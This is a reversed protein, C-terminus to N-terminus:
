WYKRRWRRREASTGSGGAAAIRSQVHEFESIRCPIQIGGSHNFGYVIEAERLLNAFLPHNFYTVPVLVRCADDQKEGVYVALHGKSIQNQNMFDSGVPIYGSGPRRFNVGKVCHKLLNGLNCLKSIAKTACNSSGLRKYSIKAKRRRHIFKFVRVLRRGLRFGRMKRM